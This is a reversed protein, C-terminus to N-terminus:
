SHSIAQDLILLEGFAFRRAQWVSPSEGHARGALWKMVGGHTVLLLAPTAARERLFDEIRAQLQMVSEGGPPMYSLPAAAWADLEARPIRDWAQMEWAGFNMEMLRADAVPTAHLARALLSCRQLPSTYCPVDTPLRARLCEVAGAPLPEALPLDTAGYCVGDAVAPRHHRVLYLRM